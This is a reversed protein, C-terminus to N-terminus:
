NCQYEISSFLGVNHMRKWRHKKLIWGSIMDIYKVHNSYYFLNNESPTKKKLLFYKANTKM